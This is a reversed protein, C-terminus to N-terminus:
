QVGKRLAGDGFSLVPGVFQFSGGSLPFVRIDPSVEYGGPTQNVAPVVTVSSVREDKECESKIAASLNVLADSTLGANLLDDVSLGYEPDDWYFGRRTDLRMYLAQSLIAEDETLRRFMPSFINISEGYDGM